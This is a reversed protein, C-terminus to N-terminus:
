GGLLEKEQVKQVLKGEELLLRDEQPAPERGVLRPDQVALPGAEKALRVVTRASPWVGRMLSVIKSLSINELDVISGKQCVSRICREMLGICRNLRCISL